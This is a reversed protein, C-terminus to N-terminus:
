KEGIATPARDLAHTHPSVSAPVAPELGAPTMSAQRRHNNHTTLYLNRHQASWEDLPTRGHTIHRLTIAFGRYQPSRGVVCQQVHFCFVIVRCKIVSPFLVSLACQIGNIQHPNVTNRGLHGNDHIFVLNDSVKNVM